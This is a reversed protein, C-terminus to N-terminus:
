FRIEVTQKPWFEWSAPSVAISPNQAVIEGMDIVGVGRAAMCFYGIEIEKWNGIIGVKRRAAEGCASTFITHTASSVM